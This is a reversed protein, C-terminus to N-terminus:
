RTLTDASAPKKARARWAQGYVRVAEEGVITIFLTLLYRLAAERSVAWVVRRGLNWPRTITYADWVVRGVTRVVRNRLFRGVPTERVARYSAHIRLVDSITRDRILSLPFSGLSGEMRRATRGLLQVIGHVTVMTEPRANQPFYAAAIAAVLGQAREYLAEPSVRVGASAAEWVSRREREIIRFAAADVPDSSDGREFPVDDLCVAGPVSDRRDPRQRRLLVWVLVLLSLVTLLLAPYWYDTLVHATM